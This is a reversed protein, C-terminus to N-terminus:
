AVAEETDGEWWHKDLSKGQLRRALQGLRQDAGDALHAMAVAQLEDINEIDDLPALRGSISTQFRWYNKAPLM